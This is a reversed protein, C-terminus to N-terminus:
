RNFSQTIINCHSLTTYHNSSLFIFYNYSEYLHVQQIIHCIILPLIDTQINYTLWPLRCIETTSKSVLNDINHQQCLLYNSINNPISPLPHLLWFVCNFHFWFELFIVVCVQTMHCVIMYNQSFKRWIHCTCLHTNLSLVGKHALSVVKYQKLSFPNWTNM